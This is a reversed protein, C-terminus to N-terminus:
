WPIQPAAPLPDAEWSDFHKYWRPRFVIGLGKNVIPVKYYEDIIQKSVEDIGIRKRLQRCVTLPGVKSLKYYCQCLSRIKKDADDYGQSLFIWTNHRHRAKKLYDITLKPMSKWDRNSADIGAEDCICLCNDYSVNGVISFNLRYAGKCPFNTYVTMGKKIAKLAIAVAITTKGTGPAGFIMSFNPLNRLNTIMHDHCGSDTAAM